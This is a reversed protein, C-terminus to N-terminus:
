DYEYAGEDEDDVDDELEYLEYEIVQHHYRYSHSKCCKCVCFCCKTPIPHPPRHPPVRGPDPRAVPPAVPPRPPPAVPPRPPRPPNAVPVSSVARLADILGAGCKYPCQQPSRRRATGKLIEILKDNSVNPNRAVMLALVGSVHPAAMSTGSKYALGKNGGEEKVYSWIASGPALVDVSDGFFSYNAIVGHDDGAAVVLVNQCSAYYSRYADIPARNLEANGASVVIISGSNHVKTIVNQVDPDRFCPRDGPRLPHGFSMNIIRAKHRPPPADKVPIGAAWQLAELIDTDQGGCRGLVRVPLIKISPNAGIVGIGDNISGVGIIGAVHTGHWSDKREEQSFPCEGAIRRDGEDNPDDDRGPPDRSRDGDSIFDYGSTLLRPSNKILAHNALIGTDLVAVTVSSGSGTLKQADYTSIGGPSSTGTAVPSYRKHNWLFYSDSHPHDIYGINADEIDGRARLQEVLQLLQKLKDLDSSTSYYQTRGTRYAFSNESDQEPDRTLGLQNAEDDSLPPTLARYQASTKGRIRITGLDYYKLFQSLEEDSYTIGESQTQGKAMTSLTLAILLISFIIKFM